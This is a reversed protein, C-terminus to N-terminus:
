KHASWGNNSKLDLQVTLIYFKKIDSQLCIVPFNIGRKRYLSSKFIGESKIVKNSIKTV